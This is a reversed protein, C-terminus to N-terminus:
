HSKPSSAGKLTVPTPKEQLMFMLDDNIVQAQAM